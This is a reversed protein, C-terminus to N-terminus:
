RAMPVGSSGNAVIVDPALAVLRVRSAAHLFGMVPVPTQQERAHAAVVSELESIDHVPAVIAKVAFAAIASRSPRLFRM